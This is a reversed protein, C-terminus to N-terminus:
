ATAEPEHHFAVWVPGPLQALKTALDRAWADGDGAAMRAWSYPLKFSIWPLRGNSSRSSGYQGCQEGPLRDLLDTSGRTAPRDIRRLRAPDTNSGVAAGFLAGRSPIGPLSPSATPCHGPRRAGRRDTQRRSWSREVKKLSVDDVLAGPRILLELGLVNLDFEAGTSAAVFSLEVLQWGTGNLTYRQAITRVNGNLVERIRLQGALGAENTRM